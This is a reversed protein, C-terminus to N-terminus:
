YIKRHIGKASKGKYCEKYLFLDNFIEMPTKYEKKTAHKLNVLVLHRDDSDYISKSNDNELSSGYTYTILLRRRIEM